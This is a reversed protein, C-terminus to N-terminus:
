KIDLAVLTGEIMVPLVVRGQEPLYTLDAAGQGLEALKVVTGSQDITMLVGAMWDTALYRNEDLRHLGDLNGVPKDSGVDTIQRDRLSVRLLHGPVKTNWGETPVGWSAVILNEGDVILGNPSELKPSEVWVQLGDDKLVYIRNTATDTVFVEGQETIAVDNLFSNDAAKHRQVVEAKNLDVVVLQTLDAVYLLGSRVAIGKPADLGTVWHANIVEGDPGLKAIYGDGDAAGFDGKINSLYLANSTADFAVSEPHEFVAPTKWVETVALTEAQASVTLALAVAAGITHKLLTM